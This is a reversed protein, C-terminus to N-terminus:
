WFEHIGTFELLRSNWYLSHNQQVKQLVGLTVGWHLAGTYRGLTVGWHLTYCGLAVHLVGTYGTGGWHLMGTYRTVDWHLTYCGLTVHLM